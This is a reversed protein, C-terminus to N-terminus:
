RLIDSLYIEDGIIQLAVRIITLLTVVTVTSSPSQVSKNHFRRDYAVRRIKYRTKSDMKPHPTRESSETIQESIEKLVKSTSSSFAIRYFGFLYTMM